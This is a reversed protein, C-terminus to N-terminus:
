DPYINKFANNFLCLGAACFVIGCGFAGSLSVQAIKGFILNTLIAAMNMLLANVSLATARFESQVMRNQVLLQLPGFLAFAIQLLGIAIVALWAHNTFTLIVCAGIAIGYLLRGFKLTGFKQTFRASMGGVMGILMVGIYVYGIMQPSMGCQAYKLQNLFVTITQHCENLLAAGALFLILCKNSLTQMCLKKTEILTKHLSRKKNRDSCAVATERLGLTLLAALGYSIVTLLGAMRYNDKIVLAYTASAILMGATALNDYIGFASQAKEKPVSLYLISTDVGSMGAMVVSLLVRELLFDGFSDAQWFILKSAFYILCCIFM